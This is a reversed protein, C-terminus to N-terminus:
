RYQLIFPVDLNEENKNFQIPGPYRYNDETQWKKRQSQFRKFVPSNLNVFAKQIVAKQKGKRMEFHLMSVIPAGFLQWQNIPKKLHQVCCMMGTQNQQILLNAGYGLTYCYSSDFDTPLGARGEYGCFYGQPNFDGEYKQNAARKKLEKEVLDIMMKETEIKSVQVNGHPDRDLLLQKQINEPFQVFCAAAKESLHEISFKELRNLEQIVLQCDPIFELIGEPILFVGYHKNILARQCIIDAFHNVVDALFWKKEAIEESILAANIQTQLACELTIHSASRGMMKVFFYYKKASIADRALNGIIEAYIKSATDFGFSLEIWENQLDGDITKPIGIVQTKVQHKCFYEALFAANTNSDDGGIIVLGDLQHMQVTKLTEAFQEDSEIKTRGSGLLDFGGQNRYRDIIEKTLEIFHNKILGSPGNLFGILQNKSQSEKLSNFLGAIVNHGGSAQGGSFLVGVKIVDSLQSNIPLKKTLFPFLTAIESQIPIQSAVIPMQYNQNCCHKPIQPQIRMRKEALTKM